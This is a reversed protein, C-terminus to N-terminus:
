QGLLMLKNFVILIEEFNKIMILLYCIFAIEISNM